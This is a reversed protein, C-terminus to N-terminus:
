EYLFVFPHAGCGAKGVDTMEGQKLVKLDDVDVESFAFVLQRFSPLIMEKGPCPDPRPGTPIASRSFIRAM